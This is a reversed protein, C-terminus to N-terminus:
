RSVGSRPARTTARSDFASTRSTGTGPWTVFPRGPGRDVRRVRRSTCGPRAATSPATSSSSRAGRRDVVPWQHRAPRAGSRSGRADDDDPRCWPSLWLPPPMRGTGELAANLALDDEGLDMVHGGTLGASAMDDLVGAFHELRTAFSATPLINRVLDIAGDEILHGTPRRAENCVIWSRSAFERPGDVGARRLAENSAICAHGDFLLLLVPRDRRVPGVADATLPQGAM